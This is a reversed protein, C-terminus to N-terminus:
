RSAPAPLRAALLARLERLTAAHRPDTALNTFEGPDNAHDYLELGNRGEDWETCRWRETRVSRGWHEAKPGRRAQTFGGEHLRRTPPYPREDKFPTGFDWAQPDDRSENGSPVGLHFIKGARATAYGNRRFHTPLTVVGPLNRYLDDSNLTVGTTQPRMGALLSARSPNCHPFQCYARDFRVGRRALADLNPTQALPHGYSGLTAALDDALILM